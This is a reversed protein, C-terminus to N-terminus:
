SHIHFRLEESHLQMRMQLLVLDLSPALVKLLGTDSTHHRCLCFSSLIAATLISLLSLIPLFLPFWANDLRTPEPTSRDLTLPLTHAPTRM